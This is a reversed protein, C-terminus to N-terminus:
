HTVLVEREDHFNNRFVKLDLAPDNFNMKFDQLWKQIRDICNLIKSFGLLTLFDFTIIRNYLQKADSKAQSIANKHDM